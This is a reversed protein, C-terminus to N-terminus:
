DLVMLINSLFEGIDELEQTIILYIRNLDIEGYRHVLINRFGAMEQLRRSLRSEILGEEELIEFIEKYDDARRYGREAIIHNGIDLCAEISEQLSHKAAQIDRYNKSFSEFKQSGIEKLLKLNTEIIDIKAHIIEEDIM